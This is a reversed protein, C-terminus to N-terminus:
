ACRSLVSCLASLCAPRSCAGFFVVVLRVEYDEEPTFVDLEPMADLDESELSIDAHTIQDAELVLDLEPIM